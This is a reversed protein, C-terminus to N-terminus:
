SAAALLTPLAHAAFMGSRELNEESFVWNLGLVRFVDGAAANPYRVRPVRFRIARGSPFTADVLATHAWGPPLTTAATVYYVLVKHRLIFLADTYKQACAQPFRIKLNQFDRLVLPEAGPRWNHHRYILAAVEARFDEQHPLDAVERSVRDPEILTAPPCIRHRM